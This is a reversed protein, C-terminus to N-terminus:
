FRMSGGIGIMARARLRDEANKTSNIDILELGGPTYQGGMRTEEALQNAQIRDNIEKPNFNGWQEDALTHAKSVENYDQEGKPAKKKLNDAAQKAILSIGIGGIGDAIDAPGHAKRPPRSGLMHLKKVANGLAQEHIYAPDYGVKSAM